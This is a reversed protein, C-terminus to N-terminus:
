PAPANTVDAALLQEFGPRWVAFDVDCQPCHFLGYLQDRWWEARGIYASRSSCARVSSPLVRNEGPTAAKAAKSSRNCRNPPLTASRNPTASATAYARRFRGPAM